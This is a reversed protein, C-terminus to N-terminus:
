GYQKASVHSILFSMSWWYQYLCCHGQVALRGAATCECVYVCVSECVQAGQTSTNEESGAVLVFLISLRLKGAKESSHQSSLAGRQRGSMM